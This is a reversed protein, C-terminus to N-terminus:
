SIGTHAILNHKIRLIKEGIINVKYKLLLDYNEAISGAYSNEVPIIGHDVERKFVKDFVESFSYCPILTINEGFYEIAAEESYAGREGQFAVKM